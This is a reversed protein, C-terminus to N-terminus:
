ILPVAHGDDGRGRDRGLRRDPVLQQHGWAHDGRLQRRDHAARYHAARAAGAWVLTPQAQCEEPDTRHLAQQCRPKKASHGPREASHGPRKTRHGQRKTRHGQRKDAHGQRKDAHGQRKGRHGPRRARHGPGEKPDTEELLHRRKIRCAGQGRGELIAM